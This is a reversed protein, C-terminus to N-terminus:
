LSGYLAYNFLAILFNLKKRIIVAVRLLLQDYDFGCNTINKFVVFYVLCSYKDQRPGLRGSTKACKKRSHNELM